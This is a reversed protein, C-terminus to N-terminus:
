VDEEKWFKWRLNKKIRCNGCYKSQKLITKYSKNCNICKKLHINQKM